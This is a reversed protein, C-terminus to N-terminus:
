IHRSLRGKVRSVQRGWVQATQGGAEAPPRKTGRLGSMTDKWRPMRYSPLPKQPQAVAVLPCPSSSLPQLVSFQAAPGRSDSIRHATHLLPASSLGAADTGMCCKRTSLRQGPGTSPGPSPQSLLSLYGWPSLSLSGWPLPGGRREQCPAQSMATPECAPRLSHTASLHTTGHAGHGGPFRSQGAM